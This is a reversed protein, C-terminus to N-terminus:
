KTSYLLWRDVWISDKKFVDACIAYDSNSNKIPVVYACSYNDNWLYKYLNNTLYEKPIDGSKFFITHRLKDTLDKNVSVVARRLLEGLTEMTLPEKVIMDVLTNAEKETCSTIRLSDKLKVKQVNRGINITEYKTNKM